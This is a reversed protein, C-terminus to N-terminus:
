RVVTATNPAAGIPHWLLHHPLTAVVCFALFALTVNAPTIGGHLWAAIVVIAISPLLLPISEIHIRWANLLPRAPAAGEPTTARLCHGFAHVTVFYVGIAFLPPTTASLALVALIVLWEECGQRLTTPPRLTRVLTFCLAVLVLCGAIIPVTSANEPLLTSSAGAAHAIEAFPRWSAQPNFFFPATIVVLGRGLGALHDVANFRARGRTWVSDSTGFHYAALLLFAVVTATPLLLLGVCCLIMVATYIAFCRFAQGPGRSTKRIAALDYAGHPMGAFLLGLCWVWEGVPARVSLLSGANLFFLPVLQPATNVLTM